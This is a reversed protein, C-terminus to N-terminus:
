DSRHLVQYDGDEDVAILAWEGSLAATLRSALEGCHERWAVFCRLSDGDQEPPTVTTPEATGLATVQVEKWDRTARFSRGDGIVNYGLEDFISQAEEIPPATVSAM